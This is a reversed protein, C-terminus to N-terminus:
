AYEDRAFQIDCLDTKKKKKYFDGVLIGHKLPLASRLNFTEELDEEM